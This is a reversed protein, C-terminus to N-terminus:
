YDRTKRIDELMERSAKGIKESKATQAVGCRWWAEYGNTMTKPLVKIDLLTSCEQKRADEIAERLEEITRVTYTRVGYAAANAAYDIVMLEGDIKGSEPDRKRVESNLSDM